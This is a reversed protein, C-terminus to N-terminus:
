DRQSNNYNYIQLIEKIAPKIENNNVLSLHNLSLQSILKWHLSADIKNTGSMSPKVIVSVNDAPVDIIPQLTEGVPVRASLDGNTALIDAYVTAGDVTTTKFDFGHLSIYPSTSNDEYRSYWFIAQTAEEIGHSYGFFPKIKRSKEAEVLYVDNINYIQRNNDSGYDVKIQHEYKSHDLQWPQSTTKFLNEASVCNLLLNDPTIELGTKNIHSPFQCVFRANIVIM